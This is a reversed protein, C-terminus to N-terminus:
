HMPMAFPNKYPRELGGFHKYVSKKDAGWSRCSTFNNSMKTANSLHSSPQRTRLANYTIHTFVM